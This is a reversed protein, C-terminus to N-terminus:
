KGAQSAEFSAINKLADYQASAFNSVRRGNIFLTPTSPVEMAKGLLESRLVRESTKETAACAQIKDPDAGAEKAYERLQATIAADEVTPKGSADTKRVAEEIERQHSYVSDIFTFAQDSNERGMCDVYGAAEEAWPHQPLPFNQFVFRAQPFDERLKDMMPAAERCAPCELDAFEVILMKADAPGKSPGSVESALKERDAAFPDAGFPLVEGVIVHKLDQSVYWKGLQPGQPTNFLTTVTTLGAIPSPEISLVKVSLDTEYGFMRQFYAEALERTLGAPKSQAAHPPATKNGGSQAFLSLSLLVVASCKLVKRMM